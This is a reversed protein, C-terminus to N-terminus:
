ETAVNKMEGKIEAELDADPSRALALKLQESAKTFQGLGAYSMGLHYHVLAINPLATAAAELLPVATKFDGQRYSVWGLTDKFQPVESKRLSAALLQARDLSAKDTRHDALMSALNNSIIMSNPQQKALYEYESIAAEYDRKQELDGALAMHLIPSDPQEKLGAKIVELADDIKQQSLYLDALARYGIADKPQKQIAVKFNKAAQDAANNTLQVSGLLVYAEANAPNAKLVSQLFAIARDTQKARILAGVLAVMPQVASPSAAVANQFVTVSEDYKKRGGLAAGLIQDAIGRSDGIRKITEAIEQAGAWDQRNLKMEALASLVDVNNPWRNALDTLIDFAHDTSSRRRLFAVYNLGVSADFNSVKTADAFEKDALEISGRREYATALLMMLEASQPKDNLAERLDSIAAELAGQDLRISGRLTLADVNRSDKSLIDSVIKEAADTNKQARNLEALKIKATLAHAPSAPDGSLTELLKFSDGVDHQAYDLEALALQYAFVEGGANIRAVLEERAVAPGKLNYLFRVVELGSEANGPDAAAIARVEKEADEPRHQDLYFKVLQQRFAVEEPYVDALKRLLSEIQSFDKLQEYVKIKFLQVGVDKMQSESENSLIQLAGKPDGTDLRNAALVMLADINNPDLKLAAQSYRLAGASDKLKYLIVSKLSLLPANSSDSESIENVLKLAEDVAGGLLLLKALRLRVTDDKPDLELLDRLVPVLTPWDKVAEEAQALGQWAPILKNNLKVANRFEIIAKQNKHAALLEVGSQYYSEARDEASGCGALQLVVLVLFAPRIKAVRESFTRSM